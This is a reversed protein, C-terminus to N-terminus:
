APRPSKEAPEKPVPTGCEPCVGAPTAPSYGCRVCNFGSKGSARRTLLFATVALSTLIFWNPIAIYHVIEMPPTGPPRELEVYEERGAVFGLHTQKEPLPEPTRFGWMHENRYPSRDDILSLWLEGHRSVIEGAYQGGPGGVFADVDLESRVWLGVTAVCLLLSIASAVAFLRRRM